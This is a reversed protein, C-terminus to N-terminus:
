LTSTLWSVLPGALRTPVWRRRDLYSALTAGGARLAEDFSCHPAALECYGAFFSHMLRRRPLTTVTGLRHPPLRGLLCSMMLGLDDVPDGVPLPDVAAGAPPLPDIIAIDGTGAGIWVNSFGFDGHLLLQGACVKDGALDRVWLDSTSSHLHLWALVRGAQTFWGMAAGDDSASTLYARQIPVYGDLREFVAIDRTGDVFLVEPVRFVDGAFSSYGALKAAETACNGTGTKVVATELVHVVM